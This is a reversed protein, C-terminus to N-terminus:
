KTSFNYAFGFSLIEQLMWHKWSQSTIARSSDYRLHVYIQTSLFRNIAFSLTNEWDGVFYKYDTFLFVRTRYNINSTLQWNVTTESSSGVQNVIKKGDAINFLAPDIYPDICTKLNYSIPSISVNLTFNKKKDTKTYTMGLGVNFDGPSLFSAKRQQSDKPYNNLLQTKFQLTFSYYWKEYARLGAKMNWQFVDESVSYKHYLDSPTSNLGLKYSVTNQFMLTPHYIPNLTVDWLFNILLALHNNGGQYWNPSIYAQSFQIGGNFLHLWHIKGPDQISIEAKGADVAPLNLNRIYAAFSIDDDPLRVPEPLTWYTFDITHPHEVMIMQMVDALRRKQIISSHLWEPVASAAPKIVNKVASDPINDIETGIAVASLPVSDPNIDMVTGASYKPAPLSFSVPDIHRYGSFVWPALLMSYIMDNSTDTPYMALIERVSRVTTDPRIEMDASNVTMASAKQREAQSSAIHRFRQPHAEAHTASLFLLLLMLPIHFERSLKKM